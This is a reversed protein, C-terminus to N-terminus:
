ASQFAARFLELNERAVACAQECEATLKDCEARTEPTDNDCLHMLCISLPRHANQIATRYVYLAAKDARDAGVAIGFNVAQQTKQETQKITM